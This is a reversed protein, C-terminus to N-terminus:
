VSAFEVVDSKVVVNRTEECYVASGQVLANSEDEVEEVYIVVHEDVNLIDFADQPVNVYVVVFRIQM